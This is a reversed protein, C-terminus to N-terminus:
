KVILLKQTIIVKCRVQVLTICSRMKELRELIYDNREKRKKDEELFADYRKRLAKIKESKNRFYSLIIIWLLTIYYFIFLIIDLFIYLNYIDSM